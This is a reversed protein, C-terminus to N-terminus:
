KVHLDIESVPRHRCRQADTHGSARRVSHSSREELFAVLPLAVLLLVFLVIRLVLVILLTHTFAAVVICAIPVMGLFPMELFIFVLSRVLRAILLAVALSTTM